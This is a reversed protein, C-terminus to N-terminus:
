GNWENFERIQKLAMSDIDVVEGILFQINGLQPYTFFLVDVGHLNGGSVLTFGPSLYDWLKLEGCYSVDECEDFSSPFITVKDSIKASSGFVIEKGGYPFLSAPCMAFHSYAESLWGYTDDSQYWMFWLNKYGNRLQIRIRGIVEFSKSKYNGTTGIQIISFDDPGFNAKVGKSTADALVQGCNPCCLLFSQSGKVTAKM